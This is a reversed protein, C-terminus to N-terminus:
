LNLTKASQESWKTSNDFRHILRLIISPNFFFLFFQVMSRQRTPGQTPNRFALFNVMIAAVQM